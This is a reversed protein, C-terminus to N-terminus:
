CTVSARANPHWLRARTKSACSDELCRCTKCSWLFFRDTKTSGRRHACYCCSGRNALLGFGMVMCLYFFELGQHWGPCAVVLVRGDSAFTPLRCTRSSFRTRCGRTQRDTMETLLPRVLIWVLVGGGLSFFVKDQFGSAAFAVACSALLLVFANAIRHERV